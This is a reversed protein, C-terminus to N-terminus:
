ALDWLRVTQDWGASALTKGDAAIAVDNVQDTHGTLTALEKGTTSDYLKVKLICALFVHRGVDDVQQVKVFRSYTPLPIYDRLHVEYDLGVARQCIGIEETRIVRQRANDLFDAFTAFLMRSACKEILEVVDM